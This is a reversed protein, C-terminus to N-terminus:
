NINKEQMWKKFEEQGNFSNPDYYFEKKYFDGRKNNASFTYKHTNTESKNDITEIYEKPKEREAVMEYIYGFHKWSWKQEIPSKVKWGMPEYMINWVRELISWSRYTLIETEM